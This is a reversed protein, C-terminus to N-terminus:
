TGNALLRIFVQYHRAHAILECMMCLATFLNM